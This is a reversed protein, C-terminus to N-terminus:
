PQNGGDHARDIKQVCEHINELRRPTVDVLQNESVVNGDIDQRIRVVAYERRGGIVVFHGRQEVTAARRVGLRELKGRARNGAKQRHDELINGQPALDVDRGSEIGTRGLR